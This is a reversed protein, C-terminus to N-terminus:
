QIKEKDSHLAFSIRTGKGETSEVKLESGHREIIIKALYLGLGSGDPRMHRARESRYFKNFLLPLESEAIGIGTDVVTILLDEGVPTVGVSM